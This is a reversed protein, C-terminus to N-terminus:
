GDVQPATVAQKLYFEVISKAIRAARPGHQGFELLVAVVIKPDSAPAFGVFWGHDHTPDVTQATGTKGAFEVGQIASAAATGGGQTVSVMAKRLYTLQEDTLTFVRTREASDGVIHPRSAEGDTALASYFRALSVVTQSNAGQGIAVNLAEASASWNGRGFTRNYYARMVSDRKAPADALNMPPFIPRNEAPLDIGTRDGFLLKRGGAVLNSLTLRLGLQYFYVDCSTAIAGRLTQFGHVGTHEWCRFRRNGLQYGGDCRQPMTEDLKVVGQELAIVATALKWTSGPAYQGRIAKNYMPARPDKMLKDYYEHSVGGIFRNPDYSPASYLALVKGTSPELAVVGGILSDAFLNAVFRQLRIDINTVLEPGPVPALEARVGADRVVRQTADVEVFRSGEAGRLVSEYQAELGEKGIQQGSKYGRYATDALESESIESTYGVVSGVITSDPYHRKPTSQIILGPFDVRHEELSSVVSFPADSFLVTPRNIADRHRRVVAASEQPTILVFRGVRALVARLSDARPALISVTYGPVNEAIIERNRDYIMGRPAPIPVENLRNKDSQLVYQAHQLVQMSFFRGVLAAFLVILAVSAYRGRQAVKNPHWTM